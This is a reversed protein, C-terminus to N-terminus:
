KRCPGLLTDKIPNSCGIASATFSNKFCIRIGDEELLTGNKITGANVRNKARDRHTRYGKGVLGLLKLNPTRRKRLIELILTYEVSKDPHVLFELYEKIPARRPLAWVIEYSTEKNITRSTGKISIHLYM